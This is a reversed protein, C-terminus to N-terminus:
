LESVKPQSAGKSPDYTSGDRWIAYLIGAMKRALAVIAVFRGRRDALRIAWQVMPDSRRTRWACWAAQILLHRVAKAGAKTIGTRHVKTSSSREGPTLGLYSEVAHAGAFRSLDDIAARFRVSTQPGIGPVTMLRRCEEDSRAQEEIEKSADHIQATLEEIMFLLREIFLPLGDEDKLLKDRVRQAFSVTGGTRIRLLKTRLWGRVNNILKTRSTILVGRAACMSKLERSRQSCVHVSPLDIRCSVESLVRADRIDTKIGRAGVGLSRVLTAPVVRVEHGCRIAGDAVAFAESSTEVIV